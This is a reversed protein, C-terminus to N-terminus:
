TGLHAAVQSAAMSGTLYSTELSTGFLSDGAVFINRFRTQLERRLKVKQAVAGPPLQVAGYDWRYVKGFLVSDSFGSYVADLEILVKHFVTEDLLGFMSRSARERLIVTALGKGAPMRNPGKLHDFVVTALAMHEKRLFNNIMAADPFERDLAFVVVMSPAYGVDMFSRRLDRPIDQLVEGAAPLPMALVVADYLATGPNRGGVHLEYPGESTSNEITLVPTDLRVDLEQALREPVTGMGQAFNFIRFKMLNQLTLLLALKSNNEPRGLFIESFLPYVVYELIEENYNNLIYEAASEAELEFTKASPNALDLAKGQMKAYLFLKGM